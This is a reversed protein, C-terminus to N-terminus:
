LDSGAATTKLDSKALGRSIPNPKRLGQLTNRSMFLLCALRRRLQDYMLAGPESCDVCCGFTQSKVSSTARSLNLNFVFDPHGDCGLCKDALNPFASQIAVGDNTTSNDAM